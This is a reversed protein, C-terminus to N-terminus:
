EFRHGNMELCCRMRSCERFTQDPCLPYRLPYTGQRLKLSAGPIRIYQQNCVLIPVPYSLEHVLMYRKSQFFSEYLWPTSHWCMYLRWQLQVNTPRSFAQGLFFM